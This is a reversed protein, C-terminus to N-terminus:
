KKPVDLSEAVKKIKPQAQYKKIFNITGGAKEIKTLAQKGIFDHSVDTKKLSWQRRLGGGVLGLKKPYGFIM